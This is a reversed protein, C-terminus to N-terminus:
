IEVKDRRRVDDRRTEEGGRRGEGSGGGREGYREGEGGGVMRVEGRRGERRTM